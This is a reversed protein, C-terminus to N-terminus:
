VSQLCKEIMALAQAHCAPAIANRSKLGFFQSFRADGGSYTLFPSPYGLEQFDSACLTAVVAPHGSFHFKHKRGEFINVLGDKHRLALEQSLITSNVRSKGLVYLTDHMSTPSCAQPYHTNKRVRSAQVNGADLWCQAAQTHRAIKEASHGQAQLDFARVERVQAHTLGHALLGPIWSRDNIAIHTDFESLQWNIKACLQELSSLPHSRDIWQYFHHDIIDIQWGQTRLEQESRLQGTADVEQGPIEVICITKIARAKSVSAQQAGLKARLAPMEKELVAGWRQQSVLLHPAPLAQLIQAARVAEGDNYPLVFLTSHLYDWAVRARQAQLDPM